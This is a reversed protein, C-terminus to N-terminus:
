GDIIDEQDETGMRKALEETLHRVAPDASDVVKARELLEYSQNYQEDQIHLFALNSLLKVNDSDFELAIELYNKALSRNGLELTCISLENYIDANQEGLELCRIFAKQAEEYNGLRRQAWGQIFWGSWVKPNNSIFSEILRLAQEENGLQMEDFAEHLTREDNLRESLESVRAAILQKKESEPAIKLYSQLYEYAIEDNELFLQLLGFESLLLESLPNHELGRQLVDIQQQIALDYAERIDKDMAIRAKQGYLVSLNVFLEPINPNLYSAALFLEEAFDLDNNNAKAIGAIQLEKVVDPQLATLMSRYYHSHTHEPLHAVIKILGAAIMEISIGKTPDIDAAGDALQVPLPIDPDFTFGEQEQKLSDPLTIFVIDHFHEKHTMSLNRCLPGATGNLPLRKFRLNLPSVLHGANQERM